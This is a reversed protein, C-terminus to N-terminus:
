LRRRRRALALFALGFGFITASSPEPIVEGPVPNPVQDTSEAITGVIVAIAIDAEPGIGIVSLPVDVTFSDTGFTIPVTAALSNDSTKVVDVIGPPPANLFESFLDVFFEIQFGAPAGQGAPPDLNSAAGGPATDIDIYGAIGNSLDSSPATVATSGSFTVIIQLVEDGAPGVADATVQVIDHQTPGAGFTDGTPDTLTISIAAYAAPCGITMLAIVFAIAFSRRCADCLHRM